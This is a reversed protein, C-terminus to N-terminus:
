VMWKREGRLGCNPCEYKIHLSDTDLHAAKVDALGVYGCWCPGADFQKTAHIQNYLAVLKAFTNKNRNQQVEADREDAKKAETIRVDLIAAILAGAIALRDNRDPYKRCIGFGDSHNILLDQVVATLLPEGHCSSDHEVSWKTLQKKRAAVIRQIGDRTSGAVPCLYMDEKIFPVDLPVDGIGKNGFLFRKRLEQCEECDSFENLCKVIAKEVGLADWKSFSDNKNTNAFGDMDAVYINESDDMGIVLLMDDSIPAQWEANPVLTNM